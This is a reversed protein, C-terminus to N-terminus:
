YCDSPFAGSLVHLGLTKYMCHYSHAIVPGKAATPNHLLVLLRGFAAGWGIKEKIQIQGSIPLSWIDNLFIHM